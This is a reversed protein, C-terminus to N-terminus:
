SDTVTATHQLRVDQKMNITVKKRVLLLLNGSVQHFPLVGVPYKHSPYHLDVVRATLLLPPILHVGQRLESGHVM